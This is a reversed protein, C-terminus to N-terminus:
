DKLDEWEFTDGLTSGVKLELLEEPWPIEIVQKMLDGGVVPIASIQRVRAKLVEIDQELKAIDKRKFWNFM